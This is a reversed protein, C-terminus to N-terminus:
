RLHYDPQRLDYQVVVAASAESAAAVVILKSSRKHAPCMVLYDPLRNSGHPM